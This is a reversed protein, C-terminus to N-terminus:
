VSGLAQFYRIRGRSLKSPERPGSGVKNLGLNQGVIPTWM